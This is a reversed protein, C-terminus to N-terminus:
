SLELFMIAVPVALPARCILLGCPRWVGTHHGWVLAASILVYMEMVRGLTPGTWAGQRSGVTDSGDAAAAAAIRVLSIPAM